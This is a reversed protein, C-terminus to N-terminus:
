NKEIKFLVPLSFWVKVPVGGQKGPKFKPLIKVVRIAENDLLPDISRLIEIKGVSGDPNVVFQLIVRGQVNNREAESPYNLNESIFRFLAADGGPYEPKEEVSIFVKNGTM